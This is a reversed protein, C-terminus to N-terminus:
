SKRFEINIWDKSNKLNLVTVWNRNAQGIYVCIHQHPSGQGPYLIVLMSVCVHTYM